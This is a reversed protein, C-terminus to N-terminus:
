GFAESLAEIGHPDRHFEEPLYNRVTEKLMQGTQIATPALVSLPLNITEWAKQHLTPIYCEGSHGFYLAITVIDALHVISAFSPDPSAMPDHHYRCANVLVDSLGWKRILRGGLEGHDIGLIEKEMRFLLDPEVVARSLIEVAHHPFNQYIVLRGVDHLMGALFYNETNSDRKYSSLFRAILGVAISHKWFSAMNLFDEPIKKFSSVVVTGIALTSLQRSGIIAVARAISTIKSPFGYFPSNVLKLLRVALNSDKSIIDAIHVATCRPNNLAENLRIVISPLSPLKAREVVEEIDAFPEVSDMNEPKRRKRPPKYLNAAPATREASYAHYALCLRYLEGNVPNSLPAFKHHEQIFPEIPRIAARIIKEDELPSPIRIGNKIVAETVGWMKIIRIDKDTLVTDKELLLRGTFHKLDQSLEMGVKLEDVRVRLLDTKEAKTEIRKKKM